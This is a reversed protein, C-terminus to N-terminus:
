EVYIQNIRSVGIAVSIGKHWNTKQSVNIISLYGKQSLYGKGHISKTISKWKRYIEVESLNGEEVGPGQTGECGITAGRPWHGGEGIGGLM